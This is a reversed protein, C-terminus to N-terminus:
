RSVRIFVSDTDSVRIARGDIRRRQDVRLIALMLASTVLAMGVGWEDCLAETIARVCVAGIAWATKIAGAVGFREAAASFPLRRSRWARVELALVPTLGTLVTHQLASAVAVNMAALSIVVCIILCPVVWALALVNAGATILDGPKAPAASFVWAAEHSDTGCINHWLVPLMTLAATPVARVWGTGHRACPSVM